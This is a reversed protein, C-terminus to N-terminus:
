APWVASVGEGGGRATRGAGQRGPVLFNGCWRRIRAFVDGSTMMMLLLLLLVVLSRAIKKKKRGGCRLLAAHGGRTTAISLVVITRHQYVCFCSRPGDLGGGICGDMVFM